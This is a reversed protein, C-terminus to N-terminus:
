VNPNVEADTDDCDGQNETFGDADDDTDEPCITDSGDCDQDVEDGCVEDAGPYTDANADNCDGSIWTYGDGDNDDFIAEECVPGPIQGKIGNADTIVNGSAWLGDLTVAFDGSEFDPSGEWRLSNLNITDMRLPSTGIVTVCDPLELAWEILEGAEPSKQVRYHWVSTGDPSYVVDM